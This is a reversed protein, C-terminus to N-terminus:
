VVGYVFLFFAISNKLAHLLMASYISQHKQSIYILFLSFIFTDVAAIWNMNGFELHAIGFLLSTLVYAWGVGSYKVLRNYLFGRFLIEEAIPPLVVLLIFVALLAPAAGPVAIGLEQQQDVNIVGFASLILAAAFTGFFYWGYVGLIEYFRGFKKPFNKLMLSDLPKKENWSRLFWISMGIMMASVLSFVAVKPWYSDAAFLNELDGDPRGLVGYFIGLLVVPVIQSTFFIVPALLVVVAVM